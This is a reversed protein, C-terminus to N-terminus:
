SSIQNKSNKAWKESLLGMLLYDVYIGDRYLHEKMTGEYEFGANEYITRAALNPAGVLLWVRHLGLVEFCYDVLLTFTKTGHGKGRHKAFIDIGICANRNIWDIETVRALGVETRSNHKGTLTSIFYMNTNGVSELWQKQRHPWVPFVSTLYHWTDPDNRHAALRPLDEELVPRFAYPKKEYIFM